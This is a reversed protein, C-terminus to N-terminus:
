GRRSEERARAIQQRRVRRGRMRSLRMRDTPEVWQHWGVFPSYLQLHTERSTDCWRCANPAIFEYEAWHDHHRVLREAPADSERRRYEEILDRNHRVANARAMLDGLDPLPAILRAAVEAPLDAVAEDPIVPTDASM